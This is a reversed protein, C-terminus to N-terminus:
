APVETLTQRNSDRSRHYRFARLVGLGSLRLRLRKIGETCETTEAGAGIRPPCQHPWRCMGCIWPSPLPVKLLLM